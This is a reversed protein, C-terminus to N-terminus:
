MQLTSADKKVSACNLATLLSRFMGAETMSLNGAKRAEVVHEVAEHFELLDGFSALLDNINESFSLKAVDSSFAIFSAGSSLGNVRDIVTHLDSLIVSVRIDDIETDSKAAAIMELRNLLTELTGGEGRTFDGAKADHIAARLAVRFGAFSSLLRLLEPYYERVGKVNKAMDGALQCVGGWEAEDVLITELRSQTKLAQAADSGQIRANEPMAALAATVAKIDGASITGAASAELAKQVAEQYSLFANFLGFMSTFSSYLEANAGLDGQLAKFQSLSLAGLRRILDNFGSTLVTAVVKQGNIIRGDLAALTDRIIQLEAVGLSSDKAADVASQIAHRFAVLNNTLTILSVSERASSIQVMNAAVDYGLSRARAPAMAELLRGVSFAKDIVDIVEFGDITIFPTRDQVSQLACLISKSAAECSASGRDHGASLFVAQIDAWFMVLSEAISLFPGNYLDALTWGGYAANRALDKAAAYRVPEELDSLAQIVCDFIGVELSNLGIGMSALKDRANSLEVGVADIDEDNAAHVLREGAEVFAIADHFFRKATEFDPFGESLARLFFLEQFANVSAMDLSAIPAFDEPCIVSADILVDAALDVDSAVRLADMLIDKLASRAADLVDELAECNGREQLDALVADQLRQSLNGFRSILTDLKESSVAEVTTGDDLVERLNAALVSRMADALASFREVLGSRAPEQGTEIVDSMRASFEPMGLIEIEDMSGSSVIRYSATTLEFSVLKADDDFAATGCVSGEPKMCETRSADELAPIHLQFGVIDRTPGSGIVSLFNSFREGGAAQTSFTVRTRCDESRTGLSEILASIAAQVAERRSLITELEERGTELAALRAKVDEQVAKRRRDDLNSLRQSITECTAEMASHDIMDSQLLAVAVVAQGDADLKVYADACRWSRFIVAKSLIETIEAATTAAKVARLVSTMQDIDNGNDSHQVM